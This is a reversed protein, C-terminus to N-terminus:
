PGGPLPRVLQGGVGPPSPIIEAGSPPGPAPGISGPATTVGSITAPGRAGRRLGEARSLLQETPVLSQPRLQFNLVRQDRIEGPVFNESIFDLPVYEYWPPSIPQM